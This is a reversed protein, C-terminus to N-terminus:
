YGLSQNSVPDPKAYGAVKSVDLLLTYHSNADWNLTSLILNGTASNATNNARMGHSALALEGSGSLLAVTRNNAGGGTGEWLLEVKAAGSNGAINYNIYGVHIDRTPDAVLSGSQVRVSATDSGTVDDDDDFIGAVNVLQVITPSLVNLVTATGGSGATVTEGVKFNNASADTTLISIAYLMGAANVVLSSTETNGSNVRKTVHRRDTDVLTQVQLYAM